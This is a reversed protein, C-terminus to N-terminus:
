ETETPVASFLVDLMEDLRETLGEMSDPDSGVRLCYIIVWDFPNRPDLMRYGCGSLMQNIRMYSSRFDADADDEEEMEDWYVDEQWDDTIEEGGDTALFLLILTKRNVDTKGTRIRSLMVEDPWGALIGKRKEDLTKKDWGAPFRNDLYTEVIRRVTFSEEEEASVAQPQELLSLYSEFQQYARNHYAGLHDGAERLYRELEEETELLVAEQQIMTTFSNRSGSGEGSKEPMVRAYLEAAEPYSMRKRLAFAYTLERPDRWHVGEESVLTLFADAEEVPLKLLFCLELLDERATPQYKGSLWGRVKKDMSARSRAPDDACLGDVLKERRAEEPAFRALVDAFSRAPVSALANAAEDASVNLASASEFAKRTIVTMGGTFDEMMPVFGERDATTMIQESDPFGWPEGEM